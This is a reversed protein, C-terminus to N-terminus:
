KSRVQENVHRPPPERPNEKREAPNQKRELKQHAEDRRWSRVNPRWPIGRCADVGHAVDISCFRWMMGPMLEAGVVGVLGLTERGVPQPPAEGGLEGVPVLACSSMGSDDALTRRPWCPWAIPKSSSFMGVNERMRMLLDGLGDAPLLLETLLRWVVRNVDPAMRSGLTAASCLSRSFSAGKSARIGAGAVRAAASRGGEGELRMRLRRERLAYGLNPLPAAVAAPPLPPPSPPLKLAHHSPLPLLLLWRPVM